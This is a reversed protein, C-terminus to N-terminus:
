RSSGKTKNNNHNNTSNRYFDSIMTQMDAEFKKLIRNFSKELEKVRKETELKFSEIDIASYVHYLGGEKITRTEKLCIGLSVLKQLSRFVTSKDRDLERTLEELTMSSKNNNSSKTILTLLIDLELPSLNYLYIFLDRVTSNIRTLANIYHATSMRRKDASIKYWLNYISM